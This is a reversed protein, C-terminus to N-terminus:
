MGPVAHPRVLPHHSGVEKPFGNSNPGQGRAVEREVDQHGPRGKVKLFYAVM